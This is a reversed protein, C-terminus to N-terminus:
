EKDDPDMFHDEPGCYPQDTRIRTFLKTYVEQQDNSDTQIKITAVGLESATVKERIKSETKNLVTDGAVNIVRINVPNPSEIEIHVEMEDEVPFDYEWLDSNSVTITDEIFIGTTLVRIKECREDLEGICGSLGITAGGAIAGLLSRRKM